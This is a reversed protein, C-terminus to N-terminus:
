AYVVISLLSGINTKRNDNSFIKIVVSLAIINVAHDCGITVFAAAACPKLEYPIFM